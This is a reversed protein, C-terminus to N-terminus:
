ATLSHHPGLACGGAGPRRDRIGRDPDPRKAWVRTGPLDGQDIHGAKDGAIRMHDPHVVGAVALGVQALDGGEQAQGALGDTGRQRRPVTGAEGDLGIKKEHARRYRVEVGAGILHLRALEVQDDSPVEQDTGM